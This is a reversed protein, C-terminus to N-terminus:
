EREFVLINPKSQGAVHVTVTLTKSDASVSMDETDTIKGQIKDAVELTRESVRRGSSVSGAEVNPGASPYDAGDFKMNRTTDDDSTILSLGDGRWPEIRLEFPKTDETANEWAGVFGGNGAIRKYVYNVTSAKGRGDYSTFADKLTKSDPALKWIASILMRGNEKREVKWTDANEIVVSLTSGLAAPQDTGDAVVTEADTGSFTLTYTNAGVGEIRMEDTVQSKAPNLKWKGDFPDSRGRQLSNTAVLSVLVLQSIIKRM